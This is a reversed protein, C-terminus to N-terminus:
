VRGGQGGVEVVHFCSPRTLWSLWSFAPLSLFPSRWLINIAIGIYSLVIIVVGIFTTVKFVNGLDFDDHDDSM